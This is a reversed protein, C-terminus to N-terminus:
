TRLFSFSSCPQFFAEPPHFSRLFSVLLQPARRLIIRPGFERLAKADEPKIMRGHKVGASLSSLVKTKSRHLIVM